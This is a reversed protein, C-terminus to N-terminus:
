SKKMCLKNPKKKNKAFKVIEKEGDMTQSKEHYNEM